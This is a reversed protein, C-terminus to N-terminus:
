KNKSLSFKTGPKVLMEAFEGSRFILKGNKIDFIYEEDDSVHLTLKGNKVYYGGTPVYSVSNGRDFV